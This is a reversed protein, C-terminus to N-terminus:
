MRSFATAGVESGCVVCGFELISDRMGSDIRIEQHCEPCTFVYAQAPQM